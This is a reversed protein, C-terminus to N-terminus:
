EALGLINKYKGLADIFAKVAALDSDNMQEIEYILRHQLPSLEKAGGRKNMKPETGHLIWEATYGYQAEILIATSRSVSSENRLLKSVFSETVHISQAFEKQKLHNEELILRIRDAMTKM